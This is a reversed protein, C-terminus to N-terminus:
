GTIQDMIDKIENSLAKNERRVEELQLVIEEYAAKVKFLDSSANRTEKQSVDLDFSLREVKSKMESIVKDFNKAKREMAANLTQAQDLVATMETIEGQIKAKAKGIQALKANQNDITAEAETLRATLKMKTMELEEAKAVADTEYKQRWLSADGEAKALLRLTNDRTAVEEDLVEKAGDLEHELNRFKGLLLQRERAENDCLAKVDNLQAGLASKQKAIINLNNELDGVIRFLEANENSIKNKSAAYDGLTLSAADVKKNIANLQDLM